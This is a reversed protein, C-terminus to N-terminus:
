YKFHILFLAQILKFILYKTVMDKFVCCKKSARRWIRHLQPSSRYQLSSTKRRKQFERPEKSQIKNTNNGTATQVETATLDSYCESSHKVRTNIVEKLNSNHCFFGKGPLWPSVAPTQQWPTKVAIWCVTWDRQSVRYNYISWGHENNVVAAEKNLSSERWEKKKINWFYTYNKNRFYYKFIITENWHNLTNWESNYIEIYRSM